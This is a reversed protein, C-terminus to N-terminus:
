HLAMGGRRAPDRLAEARALDAAAARARGRKELRGARAELAAAAWEASLEDIYSSWPRRARRIAENADAVADPDGLKARAVARGLHGEPWGPMAATARDFRGKARGPEGERLAAWGADAEERAVLARPRGFEGALRGWSLLGAAAAAAGALGLVARRLRVPASAFPVGAARSAAEALAIGALTLALPAAPLLYRDQFAVLTYQGVFYALLLFLGRYIPGTLIVLGVVLLAAGPRGVARIFSNAAVACRTAWARLYTGPRERLNLRTLAQMEDYLAEVDKAEALRESQADILPTREISLTLHPAARVAGASALYALPTVARDDLPIFRGFWYANRLAWPAVAAACSAHELAAAKPRGRRWLWAAAVPAVAFL